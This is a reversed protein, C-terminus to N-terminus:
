VRALRRHFAWMGVGLLVLAYAALVGLSPLIDLVSAGPARLAGFGLHGWAHPTLHAFTRLPQDMHELPPALSGGLTPLSLGVIMAVAFVPGQQRLVSGLVLAAGAGVLVFLVTLVAVGLPDGWRVGYLAASGAIIILAQALAILVRGLAQGLVIAGAPVPGAYVRYLVGSEFSAALNIAVILSMFFVFMLVMAPATVHEPPEARTREGFVSGLLYVLLLPMLGMYFLNSREKVARRLEVLAIAWVKM